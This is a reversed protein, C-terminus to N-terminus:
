SQQTPKTEKGPAIAGKQEEKEGKSCKDGCVGGHEAYYAMPNINHAYQVESALPQTPPPLLGAERMLEYRRDTFDETAESM